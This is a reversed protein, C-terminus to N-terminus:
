ETNLPPGCFVVIYKQAGLNCKHLGRANVFREICGICSEEEPLEECPTRSMFNGCFTVALRARKTVEDCEYCYCEEEDRRLVVRLVLTDKGHEHTAAM